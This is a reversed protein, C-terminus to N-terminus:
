FITYTKKYDKPSVGYENRFLKYFNVYDNFGCESALKNLPFGQKILQTAYELRKKIIFNHISCGFYQKFRRNLHDKNFGFQSAIEDNNMNDHLHRSIYLAVQEELMTNKASSSDVSILSTMNASVRNILVLLQQLLTRQVIDKGFFTISNENEYISSLGSLIKSFSLPDLNLLIFHSLTTSNNKFAMKLDTKRTCISELYIKNVLLVYQTVQEDYRKRWSPKDIPSSLLLSHPLFPTHQSNDVIDIKGELVLSIEYFDNTNFNTYFIDNNEIKYIAYDETFPLVNKNLTNPKL